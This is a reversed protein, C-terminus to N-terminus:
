SIWRCVNMRPYASEKRRIRDAPMRAATNHINYQCTTTRSEGCKEHIKKLLNGVIYPNFFYHERAKGCVLMCHVKILTAAITSIGVGGGRPLESSFHNFWVVNDEASGAVPTLCGPSLSSINSSFIGFLIGFGEEPYFYGLNIVNSKM